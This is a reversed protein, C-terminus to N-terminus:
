GTCTCFRTSGLSRAVMGSTAIVVRCMADVHRATIYDELKMTKRAVLMLTVYATPSGFLSALEKRLLARLATM